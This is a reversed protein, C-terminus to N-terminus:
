EEGRASWDFGASYNEAAPGSAATNETTTGRATRALVAEAFATVPPRLVDQELDAFRQLRHEVDRRPGAIDDAPAPAPLVCDAPLPAPVTAGDDSSVPGPLGPASLLACCAGVLEGAAALAAGFPAFAESVALGEGASVMRAAYAAAGEPVGLLADQLASEVAPWRPASPPWGGCARALVTLDAVPAGTLTAVRAIARTWAADPDYRAPDQAYEGVTAIAILSPLAQVMPNALIGRLASPEAPRHVLPGLVLRGPAFDNVPFNDWLVLDRGQAERAAAAQESTVAGVVIDAGTWCLLVGQPATEAFGDRYPSRDTGAYDTPCVIFPGTGVQDALEACLEGHARGADATLEPIDDFFLAVERVGAARLSAIKARLAARDADDALDIGFPHVAYVFRVGIQEAVQALETIPAPDPYPDRWRLRHFPDDKPGYVYTDLGVEPLFRLVTLREAHSWVPGYYGEVVGAPTFPRPLAPGAPPPPM